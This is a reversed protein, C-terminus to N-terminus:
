KIGVVRSDPGVMLFVQAQPLPDRMFDGPYIKLRDAVQKEQVYQEFVPGVVSLDFGGGQLHPHAKM